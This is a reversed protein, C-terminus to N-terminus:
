GVSDAHLNVGELLLLPFFFWAQRDALFRGLRGRSARADPTFAVASSVIDTDSGLKNPNAHHRTHKNQWWGASLGGLLTGLILAAWENARGSRFIQRHAADHALFALQAFVVALVGALILQYWSDGL